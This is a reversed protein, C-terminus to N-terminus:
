QLLLLLKDQSKFLMYRFQLAGENLFCFRLTLIQFVVTRWDNLNLWHVEKM